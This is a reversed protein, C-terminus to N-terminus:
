DYFLGNPGSAPFGSLNYGSPFSALTTTAGNTTVSFVAAGGTGALLASSYFLGPSGEVLGGPQSYAGLTSIVRFTGQNAPPAALACLALSVGIFSLHKIM